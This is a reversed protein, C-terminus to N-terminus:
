TRKEAVSRVSQNDVQMFLDIFKGVHPLFPVQDLM